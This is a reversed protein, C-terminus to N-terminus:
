ASRLDEDHGARQRARRAELAALLRQQLLRGSRYGNFDPYAESERAKMYEPPEPDSYDDFVSTMHPYRGLKSNWSLAKNIARFEDHKEGDPADVNDYGENRLQWGREFLDLTQDSFTPM